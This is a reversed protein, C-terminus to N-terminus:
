REPNTVSAAGAKVGIGLAKALAPNTAVMALFSMTQPLSLGAMGLAGLGGYVTRSKWDHGAAAGSGGGLLAAGYTYGSPGRRAIKAAAGGKEGAKVVPWAEEKLRILGSQRENLKAYKEALGGPLGGVRTGDPLLKGALKERANDAIAKNYMGWAMVEPDVVASSELAKYIPKAIIDAKQKMEHLDTATMVAKRRGFFQKNWKELNAFADADIPLKEFEPTLAQAVEPGINRAQWTLPAGATTSIAQARRLVGKTEDAVGVIKNVLKALGAKTAMIREAIAVRGAEPTLNMAGRELLTGGFKMGAGLLDAARAAGTQEAVDLLRSAASGPEAAAPILGSVMGSTMPKPPEDSLLQRVVAGGAAGLAPGGPNPIFSGITPAQEIAFDTAALPIGLAVGASELGLRAPNYGRPKRTHASVPVRVEDPGPRWVEQKVEDPAPRWVKAASM